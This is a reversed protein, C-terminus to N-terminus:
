FASSDTDLQSLETDLANLDAADLEVTVIDLDSADEVEAVGQGAARSGASTIIAAEGSLREQRAIIFSATLLVVSLIVFVIVAAVVTKTPKSEKNEDTLEEM